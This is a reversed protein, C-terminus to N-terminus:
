LDMGSHPWGPGRTLFVKVLGLTALDTDYYSRLVMAIALMYLTSKRGIATPFGPTMVRCDETYHLAHKDYDREQFTAGM